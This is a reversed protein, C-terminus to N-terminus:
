RWPRSSRPSSIVSSSIWLKASLRKAGGPAGSTAGLGVAVSVASRAAIAVLVAADNNPVGTADGTMPVGTDPVGTASVGPIAVGGGPVGAAVGNSLTGVAGAAVGFGASARAV